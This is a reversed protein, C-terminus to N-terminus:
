VVCLVMTMRLTALEGTMLMEDSVGLLLLFFIISSGDRRRDDVRLPVPPWLRCIVGSETTVFLM